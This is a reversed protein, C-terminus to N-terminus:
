GRVVDILPEVVGVSVGSVVFALSAGRRKARGDRALSVRM